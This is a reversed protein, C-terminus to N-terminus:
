RIVTDIIIDKMGVNNIEALVRSVKTGIVLWVEEGNLKLWGIRGRSIIIFGLSIRFRGIWEFVKIFNRRFVVQMDDTRKTGLLSRKSLFILSSEVEGTRFSGAEAETARLIV